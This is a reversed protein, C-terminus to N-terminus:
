AAIVRDAPEYINTSSRGISPFSRRGNIHYVKFSTKGLELELFHSPQLAVTSRNKQSRFSVSLATRSRCNSLSIRKSFDTKWQHFSRVIRNWPVNGRLCCGPGNQSTTSTECCNCSPKKKPPLSILKIRLPERPAPNQRHLGFYFFFIWFFVYSSIYRHTGIPSRIDLSWDPTANRRWNTPAM